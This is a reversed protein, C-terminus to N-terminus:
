RRRSSRRARAPASRPTPAPRANTGFLVCEMEATLAAYLKALAPPLARQHARITAREGRVLTVQGRPVGLRKALLKALAENAAGEVPPATLAIKLAGAHVGLITERSARPAVRVEFTVAGKQETIHLAEM